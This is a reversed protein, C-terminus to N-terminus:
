ENLAVEQDASSKQNNNARPRFSRIAHMSKMPKLSRIRSSSFFEPKTQQELAIKQSHQKRKITITTKM